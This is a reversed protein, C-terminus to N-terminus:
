ILQGSRYVSAMSPLFNKFGAMIADAKANQQYNFLATILIVVNLV